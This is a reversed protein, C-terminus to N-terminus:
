VVSPAVPQDVPPTEDDAPLRRRPRRSPVREVRSGALLDHLARRDARLGAMVFGAGLPIASAYYAFYRLLAAGGPLPGGDAAAVRVGVIMKGVTQGTVAHLLTTYLLTFLLTFASVGAELGGGDEIQRGWISGAIVRLSLQVLAFLVFDIVAAVARIWFGAPRPVSGPAETVPAIIHGM